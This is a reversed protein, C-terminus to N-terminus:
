KKKEQSPFTLLALSVPQDLPRLLEETTRGRDDVAQTVVGRRAQNLEYTLDAITSHQINLEVELAELKRQYARIQAEDLNLRGLMLAFLVLFGLFFGAVALVQTDSFFNWGTGDWLNM